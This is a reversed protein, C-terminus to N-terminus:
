ITTQPLHVALFIAKTGHILDHEPTQPQPALVSMWCDEKWDLPISGRTKHEEEGHRGERNMSSGQGNCGWTVERVCVLSALELSLFTYTLM